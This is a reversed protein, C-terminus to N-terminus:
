SRPRLAEGIKAFADSVRALHQAGVGGERAGSGLAHAAAELELAIEELEPHANGTATAAAALREMEDALQRLARAVREAHPGSTSSVPM